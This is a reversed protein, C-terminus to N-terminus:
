TNAPLESPPIAAPVDAPAEVPALPQPPKAYYGDHGPSQPPPSGPLYYQQTLPDWIYGQPQQYYQPAPSGPYYSLRDAETPPPQAVQTVPAAADLAPDQSNSGRRLLIIGVAILAILVVGGVVGGIIAGTPTSKKSSSTTSTTSNTNVPSIFMVSKLGADSWDNLPALVDANGSASGGIISSILTNVEYNEAQAPLSDGWNFTNLNLTNFIGNRACSWDRADMSYNNAPDGSFEQQKDRGGIVLLQNGKVLHCTHEFKKDGTSDVLMWQFSPLTLVWTDGYVEGTTEGLTGGGHMFVNWSSKDQSPVVVACSSIRGKPTTGTTKQAYWRGKKIDYVWITDLDRLTLGKTSGTPIWGDPGEVSGFYILIGDQGMEAVYV